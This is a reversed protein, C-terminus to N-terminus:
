TFSNGRPSTNCNLSTVSMSSLSKEASPEDEEEFSSATDDRPPLWSLPPPLFVTVSRFIDAVKKGKRPQHYGCNLQM